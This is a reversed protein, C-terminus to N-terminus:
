ATHSIEQNSLDQRTIIEENPCNTLHITEQICRKPHFFQTISKNSQKLRKQARKIGNKVFSETRKIWDQIQTVPMLLTSRESPTFVQQDITDLTPKQAYKAQVKPQLQERLNAATKGRDTHVIDCRSKWLKICHGWIKSPIKVSRNGDQKELLIHWQKTWQRKINQDWGIKTQEAILTHYQPPFCNTPFRNDPSLGATLAWKM